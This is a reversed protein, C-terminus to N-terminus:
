APKARGSRPTGTAGAVLIETFVTQGTALTRELYPECRGCGQSAGTRCALQERDLGHTQAHAHLEAFTLGTCICRDIRLM